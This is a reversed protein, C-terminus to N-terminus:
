GPMRFIRQLQAINSLLLSNTQNEPIILLNQSRASRRWRPWPPQVALPLMETTLNNGAAPSCTTDVPALRSAPM